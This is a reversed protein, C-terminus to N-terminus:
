MGKRANKGKQYDGCSDTFGAQELSIGLVLKIGLVRSGRATCEKYRFLHM